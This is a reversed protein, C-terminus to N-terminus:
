MLIQVFFYNENKYQCLKKYHMYMPTNFSKDEPSNM